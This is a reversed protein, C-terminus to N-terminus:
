VKRGVQPHPRSSQLTAFPIREHANGGAFIRQDVGGSSSREGRYGRLCQQAATPRKPPPSDEYLPMPKRRVFKGRVVDDTMANADTRSRVRNGESPSSSAAPLIPRDIRALRM